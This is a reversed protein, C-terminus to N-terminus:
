SAVELCEGIVDDGYRRMASSQVVCLDAQLHTALCRLPFLSELKTLAKALAWVQHYSTSGISQEVQRM